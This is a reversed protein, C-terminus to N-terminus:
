PESARPTSKGPAHDAATGPESAATRNRTAAGAADGTAARPQSAAGASYAGPEAAACQSAATSPETAASEARDDRAAPSLEAAGCTNGLESTTHAVCSPQGNGLERGPQVVM